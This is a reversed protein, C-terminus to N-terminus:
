PELSRPTVLLTLHRPTEVEKVKEKAFPILRNQHHDKNHYDFVATIAATSGNPILLETELSRFPFVPMDVRNESLVTTNIKKMMGGKVGLIQNGFDLFGEFTLETFRFRLRIADEGEFEGNIEFAVGVNKTQFSVPTAPSIPLGKEANEMLAPSQYESPFIFERIVEIKGQQGPRIVISPASLLDTGKQKNIERLEEQVEAESLLPNSFPRPAESEIIKTTVYIQKTDPLIPEAEPPTVKRVELILIGYDETSPESPRRVLLDKVLRPAKMMTAGIGGSTKDGEKLEIKGPAGFATNGLTIPVFYTYTEKAERLRIANVSSGAGYPLMVQFPKEVKRFVPKDIRSTMIETERSGRVLQQTKMNIPIVEQSLGEFVTDGFQGELFILGDEKITPRVRLRAGLETSEMLTPSNPAVITTRGPAPAGRPISYTSSDSPSAHVVADSYGGPYWFERGRKVTAWKGSEVLASLKLLERAGRSKALTVMQHLGLQTNHDAANEEVPVLTATVEVLDGGRSHLTGWLLFCCLILNKM